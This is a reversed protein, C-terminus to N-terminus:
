VPGRLQPPNFHMGRQAAETRDLHSPVTDFTPATFRNPGDNGGSRFEDEGSASAKFPGRNQEGDSGTGDDAVPEDDDGFFYANADEAFDAHSGFSAPLTVRAGSRGATADEDFDGFAERDQAEASAYVGAAEASAQRHPPSKAAGLGDDAEGDAEETGDWARNGHWGSSAAANQQSAELFRVWLRALKAVKVPSLTGPEVDPSVAAERLMFDAVEQPVCRELNRRVTRHRARRNLLMTAFNLLVSGDVDVLPEKRPELTVLAGAVETVPFYTTEKFTARIAVRFYNQLVVPFANYARSGAGAVARQAVGRQLFLHLPVRGFSFLNERRSCDVALRMACTDAVNFPLNAVLEVKPDTLWGDAFVSGESASVVAPVLSESAPVDSWSRPGGAGTAHPANRAAADRQRRIEENRAERQRAPDTSRRAAARLSQAFKPFLREVADAEDLRLVDANIWKFKGDTSGEISTLHPNYKSDVEIGLVARCKRGLLARTLMGPGPGLEVFLKDEAGSVGFHRTLDHALKLNMMFRLDYKALQGRNRVLQVRQIETRSLRAGGPCRLSAREEPGRRRAAVVTPRKITGVGGKAGEKAFPLSASPGKPHLKAANPGLRRHM